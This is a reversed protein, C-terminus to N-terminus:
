EYDTRLENEYVYIPERTAIAISLSATSANVVDTNETKALDHRCRKKRPKRPNKAKPEMMFAERASDEVKRCAMFLRAPLTKECCAMMFIHTEFASLIFRHPDWPGRNSQFWILVWLDAIEHQLTNICKKEDELVAEHLLHLVEVHATSCHLIPSGSMDMGEICALVFGLQPYTELAIVLSLEVEVRKCFAKAAWFDAFHAM